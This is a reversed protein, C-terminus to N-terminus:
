YVRILQPPQVLGTTDELYLLTQARNPIGMGYFAIMTDLKYKYLQEEPPTLPIPRVKNILYSQRVQEKFLNFMMTRYSIMDLGLRRLNNYSITKNNIKPNDGIYFFNFMMRGISPVYQPLMAFTQPNMYGRTTEPGMFRQIHNLMYPPITHISPPIPNQLALNGPHVPVYPPSQSGPVYSNPSNPAYLPSPVYPPSQSGPVYSNQSNPAYLPSANPFMIENDNDDFCRNKSTKRSGNPCRNPTRHVVVDQNNFCRTKSVKRSHRPCKPM